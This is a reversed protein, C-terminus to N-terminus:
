ILERDESLIRNIQSLAEMAEGQHRVAVETLLANVLATAAATANTFMMNDSRVAFVHRARSAVPATPRDTIALTPISREGLQEVMQLTQKSYPPFSFTLLLDSPRLGVLQELPSSFRTSLTTTRLGIQVLRYSALEALHASIGLGFTFIHDAKFIAAAARRFARRDVADVSRELNSIELRAVAGLVDDEPDRAPCAEVGDSEGLVSGRLLELLAMKMEAFGSYGIRQALRVVTAESTGVKKALAPVSLFPVEQLNALLYEAIVKQQGPLSEFHDLLLSRLETKGRINDRFDDRIDEM